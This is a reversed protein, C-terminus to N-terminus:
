DFNLSKGCNPCKESEQAIREGCYPCFMGEKIKFVKSAKKQKISEDRMTLGAILGKKRLCNVFLPTLLCILLPSLILSFLSYVFRYLFFLLYNRTAPSIWSSYTATDVVWILDIIFQYISNLILTIISSLVFIGLIRLFSGKAIKKAISISNDFEDANYTYVSFIYYGLIIIGPILLLILGFPIGIGLLILVLFLKANMNSKMSEWLDVEQNLYTKYLYLGVMCFGFIMFISDTLLQIIISGVSVLLFQFLIEFDEQTLMTETELIEDLIGNVQSALLSEQYLFDPLIFSNLIIPILSIIFLPLIIKTYMDKFFSLGDLFIDLFRKNSGKRQNYYSM